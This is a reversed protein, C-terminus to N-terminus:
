HSGATYVEFNVHSKLLILQETLLSYANRRINLMAVTHDKNCSM